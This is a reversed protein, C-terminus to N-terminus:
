KLCSEFQNALQELFAFYAGDQDAIDSALPDLVGTNVNSGRVVTEIVAPTYQPESFVCHVDGKALRQKIQILTRAGPKREPSVTFYGLHNLHFFEEFYGYGDHFVFYGKDRIPKFQTDIKLTTMQLKSIFAELNQQYKSRNVPDINIMKETIARAVVNVQKPGLWFHPDLSGHSHGEHDHGDHDDGSISYDRLDLNPVESITLTNDEGEMLTVMFAELEPGFWVVLDADRLKKVDSPRLAYDHPSM